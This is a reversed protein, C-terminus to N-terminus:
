KKGHTLKESDWSSGKTRALPSMAKLITGEQARAAAKNSDGM